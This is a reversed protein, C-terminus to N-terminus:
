TNQSLLKDVICYIKDVTNMKEFIMDEDNFEIGFVDEMEVITRIFILSDMGVEDLSVSTNDETLAIAKNGSEDSNTYDIILENILQVIRAKLEGKTYLM